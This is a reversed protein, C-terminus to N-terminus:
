KKPHEKKFKKEKKGPTKKVLEPDKTLDIGFVDSLTDDSLRKKPSIKGKTKLAMKAGILEGPDVGRLLFLLEPKQDLRAGVGYLVAALHKCLDAYDPCSCDLDIEGPLPFLGHEHDTVVRMVNESLKGQLLELLSATEGASRSKVQEWKKFDLPKIKIRITYLESGSVLADIQGKGIALHCVSGNRVYTRGRPLRNEYDSFSELHECWAEGWFTQAIKRGDLTVPQVDVGKKKRKEMEKLAKARRTAVPVYPKWQQWRM